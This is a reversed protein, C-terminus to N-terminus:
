YNMGDTPLIIQSKLCSSQSTKVISKGIVDTLPCKEPDIDSVARQYRRILETERERVSAPTANLAIRILGSAASKEVSERRRRGPVCKDERSASPAAHAAGFLAREGELTDRQRAKHIAALM